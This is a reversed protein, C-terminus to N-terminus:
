PHTPYTLSATLPFVSELECVKKEFVLFETSDVLTEKPTFHAGEGDTTHTHVM